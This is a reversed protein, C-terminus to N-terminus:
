RDAGVRRGVCGSIRGVRADDFGSSGQSAIRRVNSPFLELFDTRTGSRTSLGLGARIKAAGQWFPLLSWVLRKLWNM